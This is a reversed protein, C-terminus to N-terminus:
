EWIVLTINNSDINSSSTNLVQCSVQTTSNPSALLIRGGGIGGSIAYNTDKMTVNLNIQYNGTGVFSLSSINYGSNESVGTTGKFRVWAKATDFSKGVVKSRSHSTGVIGSM